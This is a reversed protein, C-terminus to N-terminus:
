NASVKWSKLANSILIFSLISGIPTAFFLPFALLASVPRAWELQRDSASRLVVHSAALVVCLALTSFSSLTLRENSLWLALVSLVAFVAYLYSAFKHTGAVRGSPHPQWSPSSSFTGSM